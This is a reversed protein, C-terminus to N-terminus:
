SNPWEDVVRDYFKVLQQSIKKPSLRETAERAKKEMSKLNSDPMNWILEIAKALQNVNEPEILIGNEGSKILQEFGWTNPGIVVKGLRMSEVLTNPFNDTRSPLVVFRSDQILQYLDYKNKEGLFILNKNKNELIRKKISNDISGGDMFRGVFYIKIEPNDLRELADLILDCGKIGCISGFYLIFNKDGSNFTKLSFYDYYPSEIVEVLKLEIGKLKKLMAYSPSIIANAKKLIALEFAVLANKVASPLNYYEPYIKSAVSALGSLRILFPIEKNHYFSLGGINPYQIIDFKYFSNYDNLKQCFQYSRWKLRKYNIYSFDFLKVSFRNIWLDIWDMKKETIKITLTTIGNEKSVIENKSTLTLIFIEHGEDSLSQAIKWLYNGLGGTKGSEPSYFENAVLGIKM